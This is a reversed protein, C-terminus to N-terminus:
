LANLLFTLGLVCASVAACASFAHDLFCICSIVMNDIDQQTATDPIVISQVM